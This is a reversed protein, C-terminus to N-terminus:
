RGVRRAADLWPDLETGGARGDGCAHRNAARDSTASRPAALRQSRRVTPSLTPRAGHHASALLPLSGKPLASAHMSTHLSTHISTGNPARAKEQVARAKRAKLNAAMVDIPKLLLELFGHWAAGGNFLFLAQRRAPEHRALTVADLYALHQTLPPAEKAMAAMLVKEDGLPSASARRFDLPQTYAVHVASFGLRCSAVFAWSRLLMSFWLGLGAASAASAASAAAESGPADGM